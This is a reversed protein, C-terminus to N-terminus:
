SFIAKGAWMLAEELHTLAQEKAYCNEVNGDLLEALDITASRVEAQLGQKDAHDAAVPAQATQFRSLLQDREERSPAITRLAM